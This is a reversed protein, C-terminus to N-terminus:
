DCADNAEFNWPGFNGRRMKELNLVTYNFM